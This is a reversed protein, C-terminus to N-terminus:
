EEREEDTAGDQGAGATPRNHKSRQERREEPDQPADDKSDGAGSKLKDLGDRFDEVRKRAEAQQAAIEEDTTVYSSSAARIRDARDRDGEDPKRVMMSFAPMRETGVTARVYCHHVPLSVMDDESVRDKGLEWVLQRADNGAVQFIALCGVNALLTDRMTPSLDDLKALSQTALVFSAGFKGLESLMSEYDVGPMSQMEDVVVLAGRRKEPPLGGQERIVADVLNLLSAGVLAAM